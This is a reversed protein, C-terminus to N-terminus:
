RIPPWPLGQKEAFQRAAKLADARYSYGLQGAIAAWSLGDRRLALAEAGRDPGSRPRGPSRVIEPADRKVIRMVAQHSSKFGHKAAIKRAPMKSRYDEVIARDRKAKDVVRSGKTGDRRRGGKPRVIEPADRHVIYLVSQRGGKFGFETAIKDASMGGRYAEVIRRDREARDAKSGTM